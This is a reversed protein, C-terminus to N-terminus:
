KLLHLGIFDKLYLPEFYAINEFKNNQFATESLFIMSKSSAFVGDIFIANVYNSLVDKCKAAGEGFFFVKKDKFIERFTDEKIIVASVPFIEDYNKDYIATYVEMRKADIMPCVLTNEISKGNNSNKIYNKSNLIFNHAMSMLTSVAILPKNLAYCLGKATAVGIRLGTYSGPGCSVAVADIDNLSLKSEEFISNIILTIKGSHSKHEHTERFCILEGNKGIAVSCVNTATEINLILGM